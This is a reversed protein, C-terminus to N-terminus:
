QMIWTVFTHIFVNFRKRLDAVNKRFRQIIGDRVARKEPIKVGNTARAAVEILEHFKPHSLADIPQHTSILWEEAAEQFLADSYKIINPAPQTPVVHGDLTQQTSAAESLAAEKRARVAKPLMTVFGSKTCWKNYRRAHHAEIHRRLTTVEATLFKRFDNTLCLDISLLVLVYEGM